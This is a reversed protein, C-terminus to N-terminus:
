IIRVFLYYKFNYIEVQYFEGLNIRILLYGVSFSKAHYPSTLELLYLVFDLALIECNRRYFIM